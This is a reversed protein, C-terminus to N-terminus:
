FHVFFSMNFNCKFYRLYIQMFMNKKTKSKVFEFKLVMKNKEM